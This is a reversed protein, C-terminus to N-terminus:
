TIQGYSTEEYFQIQMCSGHGDSQLIGGYLCLDRKGRNRYTINKELNHLSSTHVKFNIYHANLRLYFMVKQKNLFALYVGSM